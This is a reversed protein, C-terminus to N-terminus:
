IFFKLHHAMPKIVCVFSMEVQDQSRTSLPFQIAGAGRSHCVM